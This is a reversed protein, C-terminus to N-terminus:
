KVLHSEPLELQVDTPLVPSKVAPTLVIANPGFPSPGYTPPEKVLTLSM